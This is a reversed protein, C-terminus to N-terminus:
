ADACELRYNQDPGTGLVQVKERKALECQAPPKPDSIPYVKCDDMASSACLWILLIKM